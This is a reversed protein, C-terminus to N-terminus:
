HSKPSAAGGRLRGQEQARHRQTQTHTDRQTQTDKDATHGHTRTDTHRHAQLTHTDRQTQTDKNEVRRRPPGVRRAGPPGGPPLTDRAIGRWPGDSCGRDEFLGDAVPSPAHELPLAPQTVTRAARIKGRDQRATGPSGFQM